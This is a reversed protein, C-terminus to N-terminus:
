EDATAYTVRDALVGPTPSFTSWVKADLAPPKDPIYLQHRIEARRKAYHADDRAQNAPPTQATLTTTPPLIFALKLMLPLIVSEPPMPKLQTTSSSPSRRLSLIFPM